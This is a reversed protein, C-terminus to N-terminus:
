LDAPSRSSGRGNAAADRELSKVEDTASKHARLTKAFADKTVYGAMYGEKVKKLSADNGAEAAIVWHQFATKTRQKEPEYFQCGLAYRAEMLGGIAALRLHYFSLNNYKEVGTGAYSDALIYHAESLGLEAAKHMLELAKKEDKKMGMLGEKYIQGMMLFAEPDNHKMRNQTLKIREENKSSVPARCFACIYKAESLHHAHMCGSCLTKGCCPQYTCENRDLPMPLLCIPCEPRPPPPAFLEDDVLTGLMTDLVAEDKEESIGCKKAELTYAKMARMYEEMADEDGKDKQVANQKKRLDEAMARMRAMALQKLFETGGDEFIEHGHEEVFTVSSHKEEEVIGAQAMMLTSKAMQFKYLNRLGDKDSDDLGGFKDVDADSLMDMVEIRDRSARIALGKENLIDGRDKRIEKVDALRKKIADVRNLFEEDRGDMDLKDLLECLDKDRDEGNNSPPASQNDSTTKKGGKKKSRKGM